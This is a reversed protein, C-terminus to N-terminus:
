VIFVMPIRGHDHSSPEAVDPLDQFQGAAVVQGNGEGQQAFQRPQRAVQDALKSRVLRETSTVGTLAVM